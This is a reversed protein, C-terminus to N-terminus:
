NMDLKWNQGEWKLMKVFNVLPQGTQGSNVLKSWKLTWQSSSVHFSRREGLNPNGSAGKAASFHLTRTSAAAVAHHSRRHARHNCTCHHCQNARLHHQLVPPSSANSNTTATRPPANCLNHTGGRPPWFRPSSPSPPTRTRERHSGHSVRQPSAERLLHFHRRSPPLHHRFLPTRRSARHLHHHRSPHERESSGHLLLHTAGTTNRLRAPKWRQERLRPPRATATEIAATVASITAPPFSIFTHHLHRRRRSGHHHFSLLFNLTLTKTTWKLLSHAFLFQPHM